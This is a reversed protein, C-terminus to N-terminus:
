SSRNGAFSEFDRRKEVIKREVILLSIVWEMSGAKGPEGLKMALFKLFEM